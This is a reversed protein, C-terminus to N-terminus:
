PKGKHNHKARQDRLYRRYEGNGFIAYLGYYSFVLLTFLLFNAPFAIMLGILSAAGWLVIMLKILAM